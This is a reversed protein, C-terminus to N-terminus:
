ILGGNKLQQIQMNIYGPIRHERLSLLLHLKESNNMKLLIERVFCNFRKRAATKM